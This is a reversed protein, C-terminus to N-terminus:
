LSKIKERLCKARNKSFKQFDIYDMWAKHRLERFLGKRKEYILKGKMFIEYRLKVDHNKSINVLDINETGLIEMISDFLNIEEIATFEKSPFFALDYDSSKVDTGNARSGFLVLLGLGYELSINRLSSIIKKNDLIAM